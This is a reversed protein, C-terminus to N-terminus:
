KTFPIPHKGVCIALLTRCAHKSGARHKICKDHDELCKFVPTKYAPSRKAVAKGAAEVFAVPVKELDKERKLLERARDKPFSQTQM